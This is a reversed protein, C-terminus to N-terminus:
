LLANETEAVLADYDAETKLLEEALQFAVLMAVRNQPYGPMQEKIAEWKSKVLDAIQELHEVGEEGQLTYVSDAIKVELRAVDAM